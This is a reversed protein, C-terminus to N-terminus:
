IASLLSFFIDVCQLKPCSLNLAAKLFMPNPKLPKCFLLTEGECSLPESCFLTLFLDCTVNPTQCLLAVGTFFLLRREKFNAFKEIVKQNFDIM